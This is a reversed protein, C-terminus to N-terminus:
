EQDFFFDSQFEFMNEPCQACLANRNKLMNQRWQTYLPGNWLKGIDADKLLNGLAYEGHVDYCCALADGSSLVTLGYWPAVCRRKERKKQKWVVVNNEIKYRSYKDSPLFTFADERSYRAGLYLAKIRVEDVQLKEGLAKFSGIQNENHKMILFQLIVKLHHQRSDRGSMLSKINKLVREYDGGRRYAAYTEQDTGDLSITIENLGSDLLMGVDPSTQFNTYVATYIGRDHALRICRPLDPNLLPEGFNAFTIQYLYKDIKELMASFDAFSMQGHRNIDGRGRPCLPCQLNCASSPELFLSSPYGFVRTLGLLYSLKLKQVNLYKRWASPSFLRKQKETFAPMM